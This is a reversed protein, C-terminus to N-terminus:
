TRRDNISEMADLTGTYQGSKWSGINAGFFYQEPNLPWKNLYFLIHDYAYLLLGNQWCERQMTHPNDYTCMKIKNINM